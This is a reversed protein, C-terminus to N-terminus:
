IDQGQMLQGAVLGMGRSQQSGLRDFASFLVSNLAQGAKSHSFDIYAQLEADSLPAYAM